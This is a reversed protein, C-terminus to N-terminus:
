ALLPATSTGVAEWEARLEHVRICAAWHDMGVAVAEPTTESCANIAAPCRSHLYCGSPLNIPSPIEGSLIYKQPRIDPDPFPVASLLARTYPHSPRQFLEETPSMEVIKGLYMVATRACLYKVMTLDHSIFLYAIHLREQLEILLDIIEARATPDLSSTPEDLVVFSPNTAMARAIGVRQQQGASLQHPYYREAQRRLGVLDLLEGVRNRMERKGMRTHLRLPESMIQEVTMRPDLSDFPEQFVLQMRPRMARLSADSLSTLDREEFVIHGATPEILRLVCRGVTTKGSGSEGVLGFTEGPGITFSVDNVAQVVRRSGSIPFHKVLHDVAIVPAM